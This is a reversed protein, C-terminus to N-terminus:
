LGWARLRWQNTGGPEPALIQGDAVIPPGQTVLPFSTVTSLDSARLATATEGDMTWVISGALLLRGNVYPSTSPTTALERGTAADLKVINPSDLLWVYQGSSTRPGAAGQDVRSWVTAGTGPDLGLLEPVPNGVGSPVYVTSLLLTNDAVMLDFGGPANFFRNFQVLGTSPDVGLLWFDQGDGSAVQKTMFVLSGDTAGGFTVDPYPPSWDWLVKGTAIDIGCTDIGTTVLRAGVITVGRPYACRADSVLWRVARSALDVALIAGNPYSAGGYEDTVLYLNGDGPSAASRWQADLPLPVAFALSGSSVNFARLSAGVPMYALGDRVISARQWGRGFHDAPYASTVWSQHIDAATSATLHSEGLNAIDAAASGFDTSWADISGSGGAVQDITVKAEVTAIQGKSDTFRLTFGAAGARTPTGAIMRGSLSLGAPLDGSTIAWTGTRHDVTDLAASYPQGATGAPLTTTTIAPASPSNPPPVESLPVCARFIDLDLEVQFAQLKWEKVWLNLYAYLSGRLYPTLSVCVEQPVSTVEAAGKMGGGLSMGVGIIDLEGIQIQVGAYAEAELKGSAVVSTPDSSKADIKRITGDSNTIFGLMRYSHQQVTITGSATISFLIDPTIALTAGTDSLVYLKKHANQWSASLSCDAKGEATLNFGITPEYQAWIDVFPTTSGLDIEHHVKVNTLKLTLSGNVAVTLGAPDLCKLASSEIKGFDITGTLSGANPSATTTRIAGPTALVSPFSPPPDDGISGTFDVGVHDLVADVSTASVTVLQDGNSSDGAATVMGALGTPFVANGPPLYYREGVSPAQASASLTVFWPAMRISGGAVSANGGTVSLVDSAASSLTGAAPMFTSESRDPPNVFSYQDAPTTPSTGGATLVRVDVTAPLSAPTKVQISTASLVTFSTAASGGFDVQTVLAFNAGSITLNEAGVASGSHASLASVEPLSAYEFRDGTVAPSTGYQTNVRVDVIGAAGPPATVLLTTASLVSLSTGPTTGFMVSSVHVFSSGIIEVRRGGATPGAAPTVSSVMPPAVYTYHDATVSASAGYSTRVQVTVLGAAHPPATVLLKTSSVVSLTAGAIGAFTAATVHLFNTGTLTVRTGGATTGSNPTVTTIRPPAVYTYRDAAVIASTGYATIVRIDVRGASHAPATVALKTSSLVSISTGSAVGFKVSTVHLFRAGTITVRTGAATKGSTPSIASVAPPAVYTYRDAAVIASTGYATIVRIDVRGASHAPATVALKTSSLVSISTGSAVGFKVSRVRTFGTGTVTVRTGGATKGSTPSVLRVVPTAVAGAPEAAVVLGAIVAVATVMALGFGRLVSRSSRVTM